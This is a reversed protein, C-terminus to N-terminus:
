RYLETLRAAVARELEFGAKWYELQAELLERRGRLVKDQAAVFQLVNVDGLELAADALSASEDLAPQVVDRYIALLREQTRLRRLADNVEARARHVRAVFGERLKERVADLRAIEGQNLNALPLDIGVGIGFKNLAGEKDVDREYAPGFRFWPIRQIYALRLGQEAQEYEQRAAVLDPRRAVMLLELVEPDVSLRTELRAPMAAEMRLDAGPPLGLLTNLELRARDREGAIAARERVAEAYGLELLNADIRSIDGLALKDRLFQRVREQLRLSADVFRLREDAVWVAAHARRVGAALAWEEAAIQARVEEIRARARAQRAAREGPRPPAWNLGIDLGATALSRTVNEIHLWRLLLEPNPFLGAAILEGEAVGRERRFARIEPNLVLAVAVAEDPSMGDTLDFGLAAGDPVAPTPPPAAPLRVQQLERIVELPVIPKAQYGACGTAAFAVVLLALRPRGAM